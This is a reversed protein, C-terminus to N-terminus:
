EGSGRLKQLILKESELIRDQEEKSRTLFTAKKAKKEVKPTETIFHWLNEYFPMFDAENGEFKQVALMKIQMREKKKFSEYMKWFDVPRMEWFVNLPMLMEYAADIGKIRTITIEEDDRTDTETDNRAYVGLM